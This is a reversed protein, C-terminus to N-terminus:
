IPPPPPIMPLVAGPCRRSGFGTEPVVYIADEQVGRLAHPDLPPTM